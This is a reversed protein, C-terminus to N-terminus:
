SRDGGRIAKSLGGEYMMEKVIDIQLKLINYSQNVNRTVTEAASLVRKVDALRNEVEPCCLSVVANRQQDNKLAMVEKKILVNTKIIDYLREIRARINDYSLTIEAARDKIAQLEAAVALGRTLDAPGRITRSDEDQTRLFPFCDHLESILTLDPQFSKKTMQALSAEVAPESRYSTARVQWIDIDSLLPDLNM